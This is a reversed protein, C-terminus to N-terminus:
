TAGGVAALAKPRALATGTSSGGFCKRTSRLGRRRAELAMDTETDGRLRKCPTPRAPRGRLRRLSPPPAKAGALKRSSPPAEAPPAAVAKAEGSRGNGSCRAADIGAHGDGVDSSGGWRPCSALRWGRCGKQLMHVKSDGSSVTVGAPSIECLAARVGSAMSSTLSCNRRQVSVASHKPPLRQLMSAVSPRGCRWLKTWSCSQFHRSTSFQPATRMDKCPFAKVTVSKSM